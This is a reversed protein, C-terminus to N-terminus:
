RVGVFREQACRAHAHAFDVRGDWPGGDSKAVAVEPETFWVTRVWDGEDRNGHDHFMVIRQLKVRKGCIRCNMRYKRAEASRAGLDPRVRCDKRSCIIEFVIEDGDILDRRPTWDQKLELLAM